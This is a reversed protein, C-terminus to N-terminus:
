ILQFLESLLQKRQHRMQRGVECLAKWKESAPLSLGYIYRIYSFKLRWNSMRFDKSKASWFTQQKEDAERDWSSAEQHMRRYFLVEPIEIFKGLLSLEAMMRIDAAPISGDGMLSTQALADRRMLGYIINTLGVNKFFQVFRESPQSQQLDLNDTYFTTAEGHQDIIRTQGYALVADPHEQLAKLCSEHLNREARDDANMWRFYPASGAAFLRNYNCAAGINEENRRYSIRSDMAAYDRCVEETRDTSANDSILFEFDGFTQWLVSKISQELFEEGNYVPMGVTIM